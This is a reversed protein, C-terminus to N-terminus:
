GSKSCATLGYKRLTVDTPEFVDEIETYSLKKDHAARDYIAQMESVLTEIGPGYGTESSAASVGDIEAKITGLLGERFAVESLKAPPLGDSRHEKEYAEIRGFGEERAKACTASAQKVFATKSAASSTTGAASSTTGAASGTADGGGGGCGAVVLAIAIAAASMTTLRAKL